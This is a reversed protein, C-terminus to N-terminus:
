NRYDVKEVEFNDSFTKIKEDLSKLVERIFVIKDSCFKAKM